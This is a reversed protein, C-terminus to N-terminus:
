GGSCTASGRRCRSTRTWIPPAAARQAPRGTAASASVGAVLAAGLTVATLAAGSAKGHRLMIRRRRGPDSLRQRM